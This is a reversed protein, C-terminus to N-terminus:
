KAQSSLTKRGLTTQCEIILAEPAPSKCRVPSSVKPRNYIIEANVVSCIM